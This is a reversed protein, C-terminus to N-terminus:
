RVLMQGRYRTRNRILMFFVKSGPQVNELVLGLQDCNAPYRGIQTIVDGAVVGARAAPGGREVGTVLSGKLTGLRMKLADESTLERVSLGFKKQLMEIGSPVPIEEALLKKRLTKKERRLTLELTDGPSRKLVALRFDFLDRVTAGDVQKIIDLPEIGSKRAPSDELVNAVLLGEGAQAGIQAALDATIEQADVGLLMRKISRFDMINGVVTRVKDVPVAFGINQAKEYIATNIGILEGNINVLAGGSNGPNIAADTQILDSMVVRNEDQIARDTASVVGVSVSSKLGFPNGIAIVTEGLMLDSSTGVPIAPVDRGASIKIVALDQEPDSCVLVGDYTEGDSLNVQIKSARSVVHENTIVYGTKDIIVGSGLSNARFQRSRHPRFFEEFQDDFFRHRFNFFPDYRQTVIRETSINVVGPGAKEVAEVVATRRPWANAEGALAPGCCLAGLLLCLVACWLSILNTLRRQFAISKM